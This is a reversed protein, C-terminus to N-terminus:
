SQADPRPGSGAQGLQRLESFDKILESAAQLLLLLSFHLRPADPVANWSAVLSGLFLLATAPLFLVSIGDVAVLYHINLSAIWPMRELLQFRAGAPDYTALAATALALTVLMSFTVVQRTARAPLLWIAVIGALPALLLLSLLPLSM